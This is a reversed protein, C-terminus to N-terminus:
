ELANRRSCQFTAITPGHLYVESGFDVSDACAEAFGANKDRGAARLTRPPNKKSKPVKQRAFGYTSPYWLGIPSGHNGESPLPAQVM